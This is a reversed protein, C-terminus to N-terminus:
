AFMAKMCEDLAEEPGDPSVTQVRRQDESSATCIWAGRGEYLYPNFRLEVTGGQLALAELKDAMTKCALNM